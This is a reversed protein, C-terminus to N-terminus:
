RARLRITGKFTKAVVRAGADGMAFGLEQGRGERGAIARRNALADEIAGTVSTLDFEASLKPSLRLEIDGSHTDFTLSARRAPDGAFLISGTVAEFRGREYDGDLVRITGSVTSLSADPSGGRVTLNGTATKARLWEPSGTISVEGDMSEINLERPSGQVAISGGVISLDLGGTVGGVEIRSTGGKAWVRAGAPVRLELAGAPPSGEPVEVYMKAGRAVGAGFGGDFRVGKPLTGTLAISDHAWGIVKLSAFQGQVRVAITPSAAQRRDLTQQAAAPAAPLSVALSAGLLALSARAIVTRLM